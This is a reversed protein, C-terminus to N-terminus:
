LAAKQWYVTGYQNKDQYPLNESPKYLNDNKREDTTLRNVYERRSVVGYQGCLMTREKLWFGM